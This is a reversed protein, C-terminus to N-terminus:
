GTTKWCSAPYTYEADNENVNEKKGNFLYCRGDAGSPMGSAKEAQNIQSLISKGYPGYGDLDAGTFDPDIEWSRAIQVESFGEVSSKLLYFPSATMGWVIPSATKGHYGNISLAMQSKASKEDVAMILNYNNSEATYYRYGNSRCIFDHIEISGLENVDFHWDLTTRKSASFTFAHKKNDSKLESTVYDKEAAVFQEYLTTAPYCSNEKAPLGYGFYWAYTTTMDPNVGDEGGIELTQFKETYIYYGLQKELTYPAVSIAGGVANHVRFIIDQDGEKRNHDKGLYFRYGDYTEGLYSDVTLKGMNKYLVSYDFEATQFQGAWPKITSKTFGKEDPFEGYKETYGSLLPGGADKYNSDSQSVKKAEAERFKYLLSSQYTIEGTSKDVITGFRILDKAYFDRNRGSGTLQYDFKVGSMEMGQFTTAGKEVMQQLSMISTQDPAFFVQEDGNKSHVMFIVREGNLIGKYLRYGDTTQLPIFETVQISNLQDFTLAKDIWKEANKGKYSVFELSGTVELGQAPAKVEEVIQITFFDETQEGKEDTAQIKFKGAGYGSPELTAKWEGSTKDAPPTWTTVIGMGDERFLKVEKVGDNDRAYVKIELNSGQEIEYLPIKLDTLRANLGVSVIQPKESKLINFKPNLSILGGIRYYIYYEGPDVDLTHEFLYGATLEPRATSKGSTCPKVPNGEPEKSYCVQVDHENPYHYEYAIRIKDGQSIQGEITRAASDYVKDNVSFALLKPSDIIKVKKEVPPSYLGDPNQLDVVQFSLSVPADTTKQFFLQCYYEVPDQSNQGTTLPDNYCEIKKSALNGSTGLENVKIEFNKGFNGAEFVFFYPKRSNKEIYYVGEIDKIAYKNDALLNKFFDKKINSTDVGKWEYSLIEKARVEKFRLVPSDKTGGVKLTIKKETRLNANQPDVLVVTATFTKGAATDPVTFEATSKEKNNSVLSETIYLNSMPPPPPVVSLNLTGKPSEGAVTITFKTGPNLSIEYNSAKLDTDKGEFSIVAKTLAPGETLPCHDIDAVCTGDSCCVKDKACEGSKGDATCNCNFGLVKNKECVPLGCELKDYYCAEGSKCTVTQTGGKFGCICDTVAATTNDKSCAPNEMCHNDVCYNKGANVTNTPGCDYDTTKAGGETKASTRADQSCWCARTEATASRASCEGSLVQGSATELQNNCIVVFETSIPNPYGAYKEPNEFDPEYRNGFQRAPYITFEARWKRASAKAYNDNQSCADAVVVTQATGATYVIEAYDAIPQGLLVARLEGNKFNITDRTKGQGPDIPGQYILEKTAYFNVDLKALNADSIVTHEISEPIFVKYTNLKKDIVLVYNQNEKNVGEFRLGLGGQCLTKCDTVKGQCNRVTVTSHQSAMCPITTTTPQIKQMERNFEENLNIRVTPPVFNTIISQGRTNLPKAETSNWFVAGNPTYITGALYKTYDCNETTCEPNTPVAQQLDIVFQFPDGLKFAPQGFPYSPLVSNFRAWYEAEFGLSCRFVGHAIDFSCFAPPNGGVQNIEREISKKQIDGNNDTWTWELVAKDYRVGGKEPTAEVEFFVEEDLTGTKSLTGTLKPDIVIIEKKGSRCDCRGNEFGDAASCSYGESCVLKLTYTLDAGPIMGVGFHYIWTTLGEPTTVPNYSRFRREAPYIIGITDTVIGSDGADLLESIDIDWTGTFIWLCIAHMLKKEVFMSKWMASEGYRGAVSDSVDSGAKTLAGAFDGFGLDFGSRSPGSSYKSTFCQILEFLLDCIYTSLVAQCMGASGDGTILITQFCNNIATLARQWLQLYATMASLCICQFARIFGGTPDVIYQKDPSGIKNKVDEYVTKCAAEGPQVVLKSMEACFEKEKSTNGFYNTLDSWEPPTYMVTDKQISFINEDTAKTQNERISIDSTPFCFKIEYNYIQEDSGEKFNPKLCVFLEDNEKDYSYTKKVSDSLKRHTAVMDLEEKGEPDCFGVVSNFTRQCALSDEGKPGGSDFTLGEIESPQNAIEGALCLSEGIESFLTDDAFPLGCASGWERMYEVGCCEPKATHAGTCIEKGTDSDKFETLKYQRYWEYYKKIAEFGTTVQKSNEVPICKTPNAPDFKCGCSSGYYYENSTKPGKVLVPKKKSAQDKIYKQFTPASPCFLRDCFQRMTWDLTAKTAISDQCNKCNQYSKDNKDDKNYELDCVGMEAIRTDYSGGTAAQAVKSLAGGAGEIKRCQFNAYVNYIFQVVWMGTCAYFVYEKITSIPELMGEIFKLTQNILGISFELLQEPIVSPPVRKDIGVELEWCKKQVQPVVNPQGPYNQEQASGTRPRIEKFDIELMMPVKICGTSSVICDGKRHDSLKEEKEYMTANKGLDDFFKPPVRVQLQVLCTQQTRQDCVPESITVWDLDYDEESEKSLSAIRISPKGTLTANYGGVYTLNIPFSIIENGEIMLRPNLIEPTLGSTGFLSGAEGGIDIRYWSGLGCITYVITQEVPQSQSGSLDVAVLKVKNLWMPGASGLSFGEGFLASLMPLHVSIESRQSESVPNGRSLEIDADFYGNADTGVEDFKEDNVYIKVTAKESVNGSVTVTQVYTPNIDDLNTTLFEPPNMDYVTQNRYVVTHGARDRATVTIRNLGDQFEILHQFTGGDHTVQDIEKECTLEAPTIQLAQSAVGGGEPVQIKLTDSLAGENCNKDVASIRYSYEKGPAVKTDRFDKSRSTGIRTWEADEEDALRYVAYEEFDTEKNESWELEVMTSAKSKEKLGSVKAPATEDSTKVEFIVTCPESINVTLTASADNTIAPVGTVVLVPPVPDIKIVYDRSANNGVQDEATITINNEGSPLAVNLLNIEGKAGTQQPQLRRVNQGNVYLNVTAYAETTGTIDIRGSLHWEPLEVNIEPPTIDAGGVFFYQTSNRCNNHRDCSAVVYNYKKGEVAPATIIHDSVLEPYSNTINLPKGEEGLYIISTAPEDTQWRITATTATISILAVNSIAPPVTDGAPQTLFSYFQGNNTDLEYEGDSTISMLQFYYRANPTLNYLTVEHLKDYEIRMQKLGLQQTTGYDVVATANEDTQWRIVASTENLVTAPNPQHVIQLASIFSMPMFLILEICFLAALQLYKINM